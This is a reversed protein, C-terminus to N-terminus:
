DHFRLQAIQLPDGVVRYVMRHEDTIRHSWFGVLAHQLPEHKEVGSFPKRRRGDPGSRSSRAWHTAAM